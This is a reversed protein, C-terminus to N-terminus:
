FLEEDEEDEEAPAQTEGEQETVPEGETDEGEDGGENFPDIVDEVDPEDNFPDFVEEITECEPM